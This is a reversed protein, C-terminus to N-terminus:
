LFIEFLFHHYLRKDLHLLRHLKDDNHYLDLRPWRRTGNIIDAKMDANIFPTERIQLIKKKNIFLTQM